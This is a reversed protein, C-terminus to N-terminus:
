AKRINKCIYDFIMDATEIKSALPLQITNRADVLLMRNTDVEFGSDSSTIDNVAILDLNKKHLKKKAEEELRESEAAFGVVIQEAPRKLQGIEYLIDPTRVIEITDAADDKKIKHGYSLAPRFDSVAASKIILTAQNFEQLVADHMEQASVVDIRKVGFPCDLATPGSILVVEAGRRYAARALAYGMKGSSRNSIFRAPDIAERTPGATILVKEGSLDNLSLCRLLVEQVSEWEVLRGPGEDKCAMM